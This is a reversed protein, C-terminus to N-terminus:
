LISCLVYLKLFYRVYQKDAAHRLILFRQISLIAALEVWTSPSNNIRCTHCAVPRKGMHEAGSCGLIEALIKAEFTLDWLHILNTVRKRTSFFVITPASTASAAFHVRYFMSAYYFSTVSLLTITPLHSFSKPAVFVLTCPYWFQNWIMMRQTRGTNVSSPRHSTPQTYTHSFVGKSGLGAM